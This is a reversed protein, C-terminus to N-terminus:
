RRHDLAKGVRVGLAQEPTFGDAPKRGLQLSTHESLQPQDIGCLEELVEAHRWTIPQLFESAIASALVTNPDVILPADAKTPLIAIRIVDLDNIIM